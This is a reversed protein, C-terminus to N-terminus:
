LAFMDKDEFVRDRMLRMYPIGILFLKYNADCIMM